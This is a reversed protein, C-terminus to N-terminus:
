TILSEKPHNRIKYQWTYEIVCKLIKVILVMITNKEKRKKRGRKEKEREKEKGGERKREKKKKKSVPDQYTAWATLADWGQRGFTPM